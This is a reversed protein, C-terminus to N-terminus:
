NMNVPFCYIYEDMQLVKFVILKLCNYIALYQFFLAWVNMNQLNMVLYTASEIFINYNNAVVLTMVFYFYITQEIIRAKERITCM